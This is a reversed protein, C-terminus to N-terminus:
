PKRVMREEWHDPQDPWVLQREGTALFGAKAYFARARDNVLTVWLELETAGEARALDCVATVLDGALGSGRAQPSVWMSVVDWVGDLRLLGILGALPEAPGHGPQDAGFHAVPGTTLRERWIGETFGLERELTSAFAWPSETLGALRTARLAQWDAEVLRRVPLAESSTM